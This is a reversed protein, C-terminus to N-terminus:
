DNEKCKLKICFKAGSTHNQVSLHAQMHHEIIIKSMYLGIGSGNERTTFYPDFIKDLNETPIGGGNDLICINLSDEKFDISIDVKGDKINNTVIATMANHVINM